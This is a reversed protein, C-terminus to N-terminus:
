LYFAKRRNETWNIQQLDSSMDSLYYTKGRVQWVVYFVDIKGFELLDKIDDSM